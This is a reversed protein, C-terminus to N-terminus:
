KRRQMGHREVVHDATADLRYGEADHEVVRRHLEREGVVGLVGEPGIAQGDGQEGDEEAEEKGESGDQLPAYPRGGGQPRCPSYAM